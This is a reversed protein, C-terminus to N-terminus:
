LRDSLEKRHFLWRHRQITPRFIVDAYYQAVTKADKDSWGLEVLAKRYKNPSYIKCFNYEPNNTINRV